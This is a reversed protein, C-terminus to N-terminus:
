SLYKVTMGSARFQLSHLQVTSISCGQLALKPLQLTVAASLALKASVSHQPSVARPVRCFTVLGIRKKCINLQQQDELCQSLMLRTVLKMGYLLRSMTLHSVTMLPLLSLLEALTSATTLQQTTDRTERTCVENALHRFSANDHLAMLLQSRLLCYGAQNPGTYLGESERFKSVCVDM